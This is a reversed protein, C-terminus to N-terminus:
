DSSSATDFENACRGVRRLASATKRKEELSLEAMLDDLLAAHESFAAEIKARGESTLEALKVRRDEESQRRWLLGRDELKDIVYTISSSALLVRDAIESHTLPGKHLLAELVGFETLTLDHAEVQRRLHEHISGATRNM